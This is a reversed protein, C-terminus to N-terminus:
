RVHLALVQLATKLATAQMASLPAMTQDAWCLWRLEPM